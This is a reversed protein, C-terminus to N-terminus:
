LSIWTLGQLVKYRVANYNIIVNIFALYNCEKYKSSYYLARVSLKLMIYQNAIKLGFIIAVPVTSFVPMQKWCVFSVFMLYGYISSGLSSGSM